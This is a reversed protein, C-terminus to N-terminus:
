GPCPDLHRLEAAAEKLAEVSMGLDRAVKPWRNMALDELHHEVIRVLLERRPGRIQAIMSERPGACAIGIPEFSQVIDVAAEVPADEGFITTLEEITLGLHGNADLSGIVFSAIERVSDVAGSEALQELLVHQLSLGPAEIWAFRDEGDGDVQRGHGPAGRGYVDVDDYREAATSRDEPRPVADTGDERTLVELTENIALEADIRAVLDLTPLQLVEIAQLMKPLLLQRQDM